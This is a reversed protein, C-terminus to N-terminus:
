WCIGAHNRIAKWGNGTELMEDLALQSTSPGPFLKGRLEPSFTRQYKKVLLWPLLLSFVMRVTHRISTANYEDIKGM